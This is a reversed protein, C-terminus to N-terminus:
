HTDAHVPTPVPQDLLTALPPYWADAMKRDGADNPHVGDYTDTATDFGTWQDVVVIPSRDTRHEDAWDPIAANLQRVRDGCESCEAPNMPIIQAVLIRMRPNHERMQDVLTTFAQLVTETPVNSWVDNTGLHMLVVDPDTQELWGPLLNRDAIDTALFGGHGENDGDHEVGCGQEPLTGVFDIDTYGTDQLENWLLARWCGPSGTISDGLPMIAVPDQAPENAAGDPTSGFADVREITGDAPTTAESPTPRLSLSTVGLALVAVAAFFVRSRM